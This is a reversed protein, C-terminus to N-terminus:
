RLYHSSGKDVNNVDRKSSMVRGVGKELWVRGEKKLLGEFGEKSM